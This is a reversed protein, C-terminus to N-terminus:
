PDFESSALLNAWHPQLNIWPLLFPRLHNLVFCTKGAKKLCGILQGDKWAHLRCLLLSWTLQQALKTMGEQQGRGPSFKLDLPSFSCSLLVAWSCSLICNPSPTTHLHLSALGGFNLSGQCCGPGPSWGLPLQALQVVSGDLSPDHQRTGVKCTHPSAAVM